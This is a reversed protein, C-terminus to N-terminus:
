AKIEELILTARGAGGHFRGAGSGNLQMSGGNPGVRVTYTQATVAGPVDEFEFGIPTPGNAIAGTVCCSALANAAGNRFLAGMLVGTATPTGGWAEFRARIRNTASKPTISATLVQTGEAVQPITDDYPIIVSLAANTTYEAYARDVVFGTPLISDRLQAATIDTPVAAGGTINAKVTLTAMTALKANTVANAVLESTGVSNDAMKALTVANDVLETTGVSNNAMKALTVSDDVIETTGVSNDAMKALTVANDAIKPTTVGGDAIVAPAFDNFDVLLQWDTTATDPTEDVVSLHSTLARYFANLYTVGDGLIYNTAPEWAGRLTFGISLSPKLQEAGVTENALQGDDRQVLALNGLVEDTTQKVRDLEADVAIGRLPASPALAQEQGFNTYRDYPTPQAM